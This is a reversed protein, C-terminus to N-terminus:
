LGLSFVLRKPFNMHGLNATFDAISIRGDSQVPMRVPVGSDESSHSGTCLVPGTQVTAPVLKASTMITRQIAMRCICFLESPQWNIESTLGACGTEYYGQFQLKRSLVLSEV